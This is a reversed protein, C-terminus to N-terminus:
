QIGRIVGYRGAALLSYRDVAIDVYVLAAPTNSTNNSSNSYQSHIRAPEGTTDLLILPMIPGRLTISACELVVLAAMGATLSLRWRQQGITESKNLKTAKNQKRRLALFIISAPVLLYMMGGPVGLEAFAQLWENHTAPEINGHVVHPMAARKWALENAEHVIFTDPGAGLIPQQKLMGMCVKWYEFRVALSDSPRWNSISTQEKLYPTFRVAALILILVIGFKLILSSIKQWLLILLPFLLGTVLGIAPGRRGTKLLIYVCLCFLLFAFISPYNFKPRSMSWTATGSIAAVVAAVAATITIPGIPWEFHLIDRGTRDAITLAFILAAMILLGIIVNRVMTPTFYRAILLM